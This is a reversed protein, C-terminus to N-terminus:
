NIPTNQPLLALCENIADLVAIVCAIQPSTLGSIDANTLQPQWRAIYRRTDELEERLEKWYVKNAM